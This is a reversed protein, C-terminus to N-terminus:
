TFRGVSHKKLLDSRDFAKALILVKILLYYFVHCMLGDIVPGLILSFWLFNAKSGVLILQSILLLIRYIFSTAMVYYTLEQQYIRGNFLNLSALVFSVLLMLLMNVGILFGGMSDILLGVLLSTLIMENAKFNQLSFVLVIPPLFVMNLFLPWNLSLAHWCSVFLLAMLATILVRKM